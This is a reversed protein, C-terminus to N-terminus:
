IKVKEKAWSVVQVGKSYHCLKLTDTTLKINGFQYSLELNEIILNQIEWEKHHIDFRFINQQEDQYL